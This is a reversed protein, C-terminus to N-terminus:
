EARQDVAWKALDHAVALCHQHVLISHFKGVLESRDSGLDFGDELLKEVVPREFSFNGPGPPKRRRHAMRRQVAALAQSRKQENFRSGYEVSRTTTRQYGSGRKFEHVAIRQDVIIQRRHIVIIQTAAARGDVPCEILCCCNEYAVRKECESEVDYCPRLHVIIRRHPNCEDEFQGTSRTEAAHGAALHEVKGRLAAELRLLLKGFVLDRRQLRHFGTCQDAESAPGACNEALGLILRSGADVTIADREPLRELNCVVQEIDLTVGLRQSLRGALIRGGALRCKHRGKANFSCPSAESLQYGRGIVRHCWEACLGISQASGCAEDGLPSSSRACPDRIVLTLRGGNDGTDSGTRITLSCALSATAIRTPM